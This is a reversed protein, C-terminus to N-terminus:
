AGAQWTAGARLPEAPEGFGGREAADAGACVVPQRGTTLSPLKDQRLRRSWSQWGSTWGRSSGDRRLMINEPKIDRHIIGAEHAAALAGAVQVAVDLAESLKM